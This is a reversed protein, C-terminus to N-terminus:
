RLYAVAMMLAGTAFLAGVTAYAWILRRRARRLEADALRRGGHRERRAQMELNDDM